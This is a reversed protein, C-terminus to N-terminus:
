LNSLHILNSKYTHGFINSIKLVLSLVPAQGAALASNM